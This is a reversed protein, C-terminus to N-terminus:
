RAARVTRRLVVTRGGVRAVIRVRVTVGRQRARAPLRLTLTRPANGTLTLRRAPLVVRRRLPRGSATATLVVTCRQVCTVRVAPPQGRRRPTLPDVRLRSRTASGVDQGSPAARPAATEPAGTAPTLLTSGDPVAGAPAAPVAAAPERPNAVAPAPTGGPAAIALWDFRVSSSAGQFPDDLEAPRGGPFGVTFRLRREQGAALRGLAIPTTVALKGDFVTVPAAGTVDEVRLDLVGALSGLATTTDAEPAPTMTFLGAADGANAVTIEGSREQGPRLGAATVIAGDVDSRILPGTAAAAMAMPSPEPGGLPGDAAVAAAAALGLAAVAVALPRTAAFHLV